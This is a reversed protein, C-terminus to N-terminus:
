QFPYIMVGFTITVTSADWRDDINGAPTVLTADPRSFFYGLTASLAVKRAVEYEVEVSPRMAFTNSVDMRSGPGLVAVVRDDLDVDNFSVGAVFSANTAVRGRVWTYGLGAMVPRVQLRAVRQSGALEELFLDAGFWGLGGTLALGEQPKFGFLAGVVTGVEVDSDTPQVWGVSAGVGARRWIQASADAADLLVGFVVVIGGLIAKTV